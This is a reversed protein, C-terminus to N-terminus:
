HVASINHLAAHSSRGKWSIMRKKDWGKARGDLYLFDFIHPSLIYNLRSDLADSGSILSCMM